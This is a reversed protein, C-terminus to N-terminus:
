KFVLKQAKEWNKEIEYLERKEQTFIHVVIEGFDLVQWGSAFNFEIPVLPKINEEEMLDITIQTLNKIHLTSLATAIVFFDLYNSVKRLDLVVINEAKKQDLLEYLKKLVALIKEDTNKKKEKSKKLVPKRKEEKPSTKPLGEKKRAM